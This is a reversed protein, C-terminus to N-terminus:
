IIVLRLFFMFGKSWIGGESTGAFAKVTKVSFSLWFHFIQGWIMARHQWNQVLELPTLWKCRRCSTTNRAMFFPACCRTAQSELREKCGNKHEKALKETLFISFAHLRSGINGEAVHALLWRPSIRVHPPWSPSQAENQHIEAQGRLRGSTHGTGCAKM